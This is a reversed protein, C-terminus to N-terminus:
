DKFSNQLKYQHKQLFLFIQRGWHTEKLSKIVEPDNIEQWDVEHKDKLLKAWITKLKSKKLVSKEKGLITRLVTLEIQFVKTYILSKMEPFQQIFEKEMIDCLLLSNIEDYLTRNVEIPNQYIEDDSLLFIWTSLGFAESLQKINQEEWTESELGDLLIFRKFLIGNLSFLYDSCLLTQLVQETYQLQRNQDSNKLICSCSMTLDAGYSMGELLLSLADQKLLVDSHLFLVFKGKVLRLGLNRSAALGTHLNSVVRIRDDEDGWQRLQNLTFDTSGDNIALLEFKPYSQNM